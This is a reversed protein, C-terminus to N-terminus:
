KATLFLSAPMFVQQSPKTLLRKYCVSVRRGFFLNKLLINKCHFLIIWEILEEPQSAYKSFSLSETWRIFHSSSCLPDNLSGLFCKQHSFHCFKWSCEIKFFVWLFQALLHMMVCVAYETKKTTQVNAFKCCTWSLVAMQWFVLHQSLQLDFCM